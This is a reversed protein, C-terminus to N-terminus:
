SPSAGDEITLCILTVGVFYMSLFLAELNYGSKPFAVFIVFCALAIMLAIASWKM